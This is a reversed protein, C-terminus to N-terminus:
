LARAGAGGRAAPAQLRYLESGDSSAVVIRPSSTGPAARRLSGAPAAVRSRCEGRQRLRRAARRLGGRPPEGYARPRGAGAAAPAPGSRRMTGRIARAREPDGARREAPSAHRQSETALQLANVGSPAGRDVTARTQQPTTRPASGLSFGRHPHASRRGLQREPHHRWSSGTAGRGHRDREAHSGTASEALQAIRLARRTALESDPHQELLACVGREHRRRGGLALGAARPQLRCLSALLALWCRDDAPSGLIHDHDAKQPM